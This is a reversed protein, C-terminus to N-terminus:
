QELDKNYIEYKWWNQSIFYFIFLIVAVILSIILPVLISNKFYQRGLSSGILSSIFILVGTVLSSVLRGSNKKRVFINKCNRCQIKSNKRNMSKIRDIYNFNSKCEPCIM